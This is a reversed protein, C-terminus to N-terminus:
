WIQPLSIFQVTNLMNLSIEKYEKFNGLRHMTNLEVKNSRHQLRQHVLTVLCCTSLRRAFVHVALMYCSHLLKQLLRKEPGLHHIQVTCKVMQTTTKSVPSPLPLSFCILVTAVLQSLTHHMGNASSRLTHLHFQSIGQSRTGYRLAKSTHEHRPV